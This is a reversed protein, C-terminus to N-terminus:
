SDLDNAIKKEKFGNNRFYAERGYVVPFKLLFFPQNYRHEVNLFSPYPRTNTILM